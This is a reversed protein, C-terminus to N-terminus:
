DTSRLLTEKMVRKHEEVGPQDFPNANFMLASIAASIMWYMMLSGISFENKEFRIIGCPIGGHTHSVAAGHMAAETAQSLTKGYFKSLGDDFGISNLTCNCITSTSTCILQTEFIYDNTGDRLFQGVSHLDRPFVLSTPFIGCGNKGESEGFIQKWWESVESISAYNAAMVEVMRGHYWRAKSDFHHATDFRVNSHRWNAYTFALAEPNNYCDHLATIAGSLLEEIDIDAIVAPMLGVPTFGSFRGGIGDPIVFSTWGNEDAARKLIGKSADTISYVHKNATATDGYTEVLRDYMINFVAAPEFTGGSKSIYILAWNKKLKLMSCLDSVRDSDMDQGAFYIQPGYVFENYYEGLLTTLLMKGTLYSGGIGIFVVADYVERIHNAVENLRNYESSGLYENPWKLWDTMEPSPCDKSKLKAWAREVEAMKDAGELTPFKGTAVGGTVIQTRTENNAM